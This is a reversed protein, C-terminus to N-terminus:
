ALESLPRTELIRILLTRLEDVKCPIPKLQFEDAGANIFHNRIDNASLGCIISQVGKSRMAQVTETGLLQKETSAMYQDMFILDPQRELSECLRLAAEGSSAEQISWSPQVRRIARVFLKRVMSDDDVFLVQLETPLETAQPSVPEVSLPRPPPEASIDNTTNSGQQGITANDSPGSTSAAAASDTSKQNTADVTSGSSRNCEAAVVDNSPESECDTMVLSEIKLPPSNLQIVFCAGPQGEVGSDFSNDLWLSGGMSTMLKQSLSLGLGTGQHLLDLSPQYKQFLNDRKELPVGPGSDEVYLQVQNNKLIEARLRIFGREVFKSSNRALNLVVQKLRISDTLVFLNEPCSVIVEFNAVRKYLIASVPELVDRLLDTPSKTIKLQNGTARHIDLMSRLFDNIFHLSSNVVEIDERVLETSEPTSMPNPENVATTIFSCASIAASLPNRVEHSLFENLEREATTAKHANELVKEIMIHQRREVVCSFALFLISVFAFCCIAVVTYLIPENTIYQEEMNKSPYVRLVYNADSSLPITSYARNQPSARMHLYQSVDTSMGLDAYKKSGHHEGMGLFTAVDGDVQYAFTQNFSNEVQCIVGQSLSPLLNTFLIKWYINTALVGAVERKDEDFSDFVPYALFTSLGDVYEEINHRFQSLRLNAELRERIEPIPVAASNLVAKKEKVMSEILGAKLAKTQAFNMNLVRQRAGDIPSRQWLPIFPGSGEPEDGPAVIGGNRWIKPHYGSEEDLVTMNLKAGGPQQQLNRQRGFAEDQTTRHKKDQQFAEDIHFRHDMAYEEWGERHDNSVLPMYHVVHSGSVSRFHSGLQAFDPVTVNPFTQNAQLAFSTIETSMWAAAGLHREVLQHFSEIVQVANDEFNSIFKEEEQNRTYKFIGTSVLITTMVLVVMVACRLIQITRTETQAISAAELISHDLDSRGNSKASGSESRMSPSPGKSSSASTIPM